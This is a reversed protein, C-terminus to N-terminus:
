NYEGEGTKVESLDFRFMGDESTVSYRNKFRFLKKEYEIEDPVTDSETENCLSFRLSYNNMDLNDILEKKLTSYKINSSLLNDMLWYKKINDINDIIVRQDISECTIDLSKKNTYKLGLGNLDKSVTLQQILRQFELQNLRINNLTNNFKNGCLRIELELSPNSIKKKFSLYLKIIIPM